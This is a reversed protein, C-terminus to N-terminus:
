KRDFLYWWIVMLMPSMFVMLFLVIILGVSAAQSQDDFHTRLADPVSQRLKRAYLVLVITSLIVLAAYEYEGIIWFSQIFRVAVFPLLAM